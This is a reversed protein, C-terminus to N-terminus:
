KFHSSKKQTSNGSISLISINSVLCTEFYFIITSCSVLSKGSICGEWLTFSPPSEQEGSPRPLVTDLLLPGLNHEPLSEPCWYTSEINYKNVWPEYTWLTSVFDFYFTSDTFYSTVLFSLFFFNGEWPFKLFSKKFSYAWPLPLKELCPPFPLAPMDLTALRYKLLAWVLNWSNTPFIFWLWNRLVRFERPMWSIFALLSRRLLFGGLIGPLSAEGPLSLSSSPLSYPWRFCSCGPSCSTFLLFELCSSLFSSHSAVNPCCVPLGRNRRVTLNLLHLDSTMSFASSALNPLTNIIVYNWFHSLAWFSWWSLSSRQGSLGTGACVLLYQAFPCLQRGSLGEAGLEM